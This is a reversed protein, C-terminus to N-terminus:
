PGALNYPRPQPQAAKQHMTIVAWHQITILNFHLYLQIVYNFQMQHMKYNTNQLLHFFIKYKTISNCKM